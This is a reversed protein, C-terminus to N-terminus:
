ANTDSVAEKNGGTSWILESANKAGIVNSNLPNEHIRLNPMNLKNISEQLMLSTGGTLITSSYTKINAYPKVDNLIEHLFDNYQNKFVKITGNKVLRPIDEETYDEGKSNEISKLKSYFDFSGRKVTNLKQIKGNEVVCINITRSGLDILCVDSEQENDNLTFYSAYGEPLVLCDLIKVIRDEGNVKFTFEKGKLAQVLKSKNEMQLIPLLLTLNTEIIEEKNGSCIAYMLQPLYNREVKNFERSLEGIGIYTVRGDLEIRQFGDPYSQFDTSIKSSFMGSGDEGIYKINFNGLDVISLKVNGM